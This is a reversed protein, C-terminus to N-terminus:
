GRILWVVFVGGAVATLGALRLAGEPTRVAAALMSLGYRPFIAWVLGELVLVLGVAVVLDSM